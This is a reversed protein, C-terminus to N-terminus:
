ASPHCLSDQANQAHWQESDEGIQGVYLDFVRMIDDLQPSDVEFEVGVYDLKEMQALNKQHKGWDTTVLQPAVTRNAQAPLFGWAKLKM